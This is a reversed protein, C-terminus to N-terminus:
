IQKAIIMADEEEFTIFAATPRTLSEFDKFLDNIEADMAQVRDFRQLAINNGRERLALILNSNNYSFIMDAVAMNQNLEKPETSKRGDLHTQGSAIRRRIENQLIEEIQGIMHRKLSLAPAYGQECEGGSAKYVNTYWNWYATAPIDFELTYDGATVTSIDWEM